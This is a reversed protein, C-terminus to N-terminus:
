RNEGTIIMVYSLRNIDIKPEVTIDKFLWGAPNSRINMVKGIVIGEPFVRDEGGTLLTDGENIRSSSLIYMFKLRDMGMGNVIGRVRTTEDISEIYSNIDTLLLVESAHGSVKVVRGVVGSPSIVGAGDKIGDHLGKNVMISKFISSVDRGIVMATVYSINRHPLPLNLIKLINNYRIDVDKMQQIEMQLMAIRSKLATNEKKVNVLDVYDHWVNKMGNVGDAIGTMVYAGSQFLIKSPYVFPGKSFVDSYALQFAAILILLVIVHRHHKVLWDWM